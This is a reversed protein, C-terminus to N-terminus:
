LTTSSFKKPPLFVSLFPFLSLLPQEGSLSSSYCKTAPPDGDILLDGSLPSLALSHILLTAELEPAPQLGKKLVRYPHVPCDVTGTRHVDSLACYSDPSGGSLACFFPIQARPQRNV